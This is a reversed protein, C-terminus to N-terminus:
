EEARELNLALLRALIEEDELGHPWGYADMVAADLKAHALQLWTPNQNYLNTLTRQKLKSAPLTGPHLWRQRAEVLARAAEAIAAVVPSEAESPEMGPPWPFPFTEFCSTANYRLIM